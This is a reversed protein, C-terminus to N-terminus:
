DPTLVSLKEQFNDLKSLIRQEGFKLQPNM